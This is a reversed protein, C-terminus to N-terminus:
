VFRAAASLSTHLRGVVSRGHLLWLLGWLMLKELWAKYDSTAHLMHHELVVGSHDSHQKINVLLTSKLRHVSVSQRMAVGTDLRPQM